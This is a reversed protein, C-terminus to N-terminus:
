RKLYGHFRASIPIYEPFGTKGLMLLQRGVKLDEYCEQDTLEDNSGAHVVTNRADYIKGVLKRIAKYQELELELGTLAEELLNMQVPMPAREIVDEIGKTLPGPLTKRIREKTYVECAMALDLISRNLDRGEFHQEADFLLGWYVPVGGNQLAQEAASWADRTLYRYTVFLDSVRGTSFIEYDNFKNILATGGMQQRKPIRGYTGDLTAWQIARAWADYVSKVLNEAIAGRKELDEFVAGKSKAVVQEHTDDPQRLDARDLLRLVEADEVVIKVWAVDYKDIPQGAADIQNGTKRLHDTRTRDSPLEIRILTGDKKFSMSAGVLDDLIPLDFVSFRARYDISVRSKAMPEEM